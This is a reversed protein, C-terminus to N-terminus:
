FHIEFLNAITLNFHLKQFESNFSKDKISNALVQILEAFIQQVENSPVCDNNNM